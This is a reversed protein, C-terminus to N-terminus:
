GKQQAASRFARRRADQTQTRNEKPKQNPCSEEKRTGADLLRLGYEIIYEPPHNLRTVLDSLLTRAPGPLDLTLM